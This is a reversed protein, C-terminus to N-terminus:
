KPKADGFIRWAVSLDVRLTGPIAVESDYWHLRSTTPHYKAFAISVLATRRRMMNAHTVM